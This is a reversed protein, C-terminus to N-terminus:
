TISPTLTQMNHGANPCILNPSFQRFPASQYARAVTSASWQISTSSLLMRSPPRTARPHICDVPCASVCATDKVGICPEAIVYPM